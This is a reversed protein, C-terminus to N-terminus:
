SAMLRVVNSTNEVIRQYNAQEKANLDYLYFIMEAKKTADMELDNEELTKELAVIINQLMSKISGSLQFTSEPLSADGLAITDMSTNFLEALKALVEADPLRTGKEYYNYSTLSIGCNEAVKAQSLGVKSRLAMLNESIKEKIM